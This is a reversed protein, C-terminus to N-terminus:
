RERRPPVVGITLVGGGNEAVTFRAGAWLACRHENPTLELDWDLTLPGIYGIVAAVDIGQGDFLSSHYGIRFRSRAAARLLDGHPLHIDYRVVMHLPGAFPQAAEYGGGQGDSWALSDIRPGTALEFRQRESLNLRAGLAIPVAQIRRMGRQGGAQLYDIREWRVNAFTRAFLDIWNGGTTRSTGDGPFWRLEAELDVGRRGVALIPDTGGQPRVDVDVARGLDSRVVVVPSLRLRPGLEFRPQVAVAAASPRREGVTATGWSGFSASVIPVTVRGDFAEEPGTVARVGGGLGAGLAGLFGAGM